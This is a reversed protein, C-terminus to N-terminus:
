GAEPYKAKLAKLQDLERKKILKRDEEIRVIEEELEKEDKYVYATMFVTPINDGWVDVDEIIIRIEDLTSITKEAFAELEKVLQQGNVHQCDLKEKVYKKRNIGLKEAKIDLDM